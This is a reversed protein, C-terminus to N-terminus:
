SFSKQFEKTIKQIEETFSKGEGNWNKLVDTIHFHLLTAENYNEKKGVQCHEEKFFKLDKSSNKIVDKVNEYCKQYSEKHKHHEENNNKNHYNYYRLSLYPGTNDSDIRWFVKGVEAYLIDVEAWPRGRSSGQRVMFLGDEDDKNWYNEPFCERMLKYQAIYQKAVNWEWHSEGQLKKFDGYEDYWDKFSYKAYEIYMDLTIDIGEYKALIDLFDQGHICKFFEDDKHQYEILKDKDYYFGTKFYVTYIKDQKYGIKLLRDKYETMQNNHESSYVKDEVIVVKNTKPFYILIDTKYFQQKVEIEDESAELRVFLSLLDKALDYLNSTNDNYFSLIWCIVADQSLESTAYDFLNHTM